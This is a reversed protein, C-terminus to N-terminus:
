FKGILPLCRAQARRNERISFIWFEIYRYKYINIIKMIAMALALLWTVWSGVM